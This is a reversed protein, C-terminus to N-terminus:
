GIALAATTAAPATPAAPECPGGYPYEATLMCLYGNVQAAYRIVQLQANCLMRPMRGTVLAAFWGLFAASWLLSGFAASLLLAPLALLARFGVTWRSQRAPGAIEVDAGPYGPVGAFGPFPNAALTLFAYVHAQYRVYASLFSHLAAPPRGTALTAFWNAVAALLALLSWLLLWVLHPFALPLRFFVTLRSRRLGERTRLTIADERGPLEGLVVSPDCDPYTSTLLFLYAWLQATFGVGWAVSDRLGRPMRRLALCAFWGLFAAAHAVGLSDNITANSRSSSVNPFGFLASALLLAPIALILRAAVGVRPQPAPPDIELDIPYGARGDFPPYPSAGLLLYGYVQTGYKVYQALFEHFSAHSRGTALTAIWNAFAAFLAAIGWLGLWVFHPIVLFVRFFVTARKRELDDTILLRV